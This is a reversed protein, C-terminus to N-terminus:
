WFADSPRLPGLFLSLLPTLIHALLVQHPGFLVDLRGRLFEAPAGLLSSRLVVHHCLMAELPASSRELM